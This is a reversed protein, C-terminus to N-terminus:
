TDSGLGDLKCDLQVDDVTELVGRGGDGGTPQVRMGM